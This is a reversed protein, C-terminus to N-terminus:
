DHSDEQSERKWGITIYYRVGTGVLHNELLKFLNMLFCKWLTILDKMLRSSPWKVLLWFFHM